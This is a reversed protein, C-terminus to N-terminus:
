DSPPRSPLASFALLAGAAAVASGVTLGLGMGSVFASRAVEALMRGATGGVRDALSLAGGLSGLVSDSVEAPLRYPALRPGMRDQYRTTLLSGVVAVGLAGGLQVSVGNTASGVGTDGPPLTGMLSDLAAPVVLGAGLGLLMMGGLVDGYTSSSQATSLQWLGGSVVLLGAGVVAKTGAWRVLVPSLPAVVALLGAVPLIRVGTELATYGLGFQLYQTLVFLAGFLGFMALSVSATAISFRRRRFFGLDLMPHTSAREWFVFCVLVALGAGGAGLVVGSTWGRVPAEIIAWLLLGLAAISLVAGVPDPRLAAPNRSEPVLLLVCVLGVLAVPINVWFVSGWWFHELLLGGAVPGIAIGLGSTGAWVGIARRREVPDRFVDTIISLTAPMMMAAGIGMAARSAILMDVSGSYAAWASAGGFVVLGAAFVRRRGFRDASSGSVLMLGAFVLAYADVVWQLETTTADLERVLAPLAVNLITNDLSVILLSVCLVVLTSWRNGTGHDEPAESAPPMDRVNAM